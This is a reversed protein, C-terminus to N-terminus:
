DNYNNIVELELLLLTIFRIVILTTIVVVLTLM